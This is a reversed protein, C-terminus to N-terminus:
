EDSSEEAQKLNEEAVVNEPAFELYIPMIYGIKYYALNRAAAQAQMASVYEVIALTNYPSVSLRALEGYREFISRLDKEKTSFPINKVLLTTRSRKCEKRNTKELLDLDIGQQEMWEKTQNIIITEAKALNVAMNSSDKNLLSSKDVGLKKAMSTAVTDQNMFLYNWNTEDDFNIKLTKEKDKKFESTANNQEGKEEKLKEFWPKENPDKPPKSQAPLIHLKRGQFYSKDLSAFASIAGEAEKYTIYAIGLAVGKGGKRLPIEISEIKGFKGFTSLLEDNTVQYSLNMIFLRTESETPM